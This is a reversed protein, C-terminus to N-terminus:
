KSLVREWSEYRRPHYALECRTLELSKLVLNHGQQQVMLSDDLREFVDVACEALMHYLEAHLSADPDQGIAATLAESDWHLVVSAAQEASLRAADAAACDTHQDSQGQQHMAMDEDLPAAAASAMCATAASDLLVDLDFNALVADPPSPVQTHIATLLEAHCM